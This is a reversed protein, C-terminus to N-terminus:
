APWVRRFSECVVIMGPSAQWGQRACLREFYQWHGERWTALSGDGEGEAAAFAADVHDFPKLDVRQTEIVCLPTGQWDIVLSYDGARPLPRDAGYEWALSATGTKRGALVLAALADADAPNDSFAFTEYLPTHETLGAHALFAQWFPTVPAPIVALTQEM